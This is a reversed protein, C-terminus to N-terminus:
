ARSPLQASLIVIRQIFASHFGATYGPPVLSTTILTNAARPFTPLSVLRGMPGRLGTEVAWSMSSQKLHGIVFHPIMRINPGLFLIMCGRLWSVEGEGDWRGEGEGV